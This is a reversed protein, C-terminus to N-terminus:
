VGVSVSVRFGPLIFLEPVVDSLVREEGTGNGNPRCTMGRANSVRTQVCAPGVLENSLLTASRICVRRVLSLLAINVLKGM